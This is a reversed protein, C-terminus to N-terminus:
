YIAYDFEIKERRMTPTQLGGTLDIVRERIWKMAESVRIRGDGDVDCSLDTLGSLLSYTFVGNKMEDDEYSFEMGSSSTMVVAGTGYRLNTFIDKQLLLLQRKTKRNVTKLGGSRDIGRVKGKSGAELREARAYIEDEAEGSFCTDMLMLKNLALIGDFLSDLDDFRYGREAPNDFDM